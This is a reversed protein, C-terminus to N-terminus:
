FSNLLTSFQEVLYPMVFTYSLIICNLMRQRVLLLSDDIVWQQRINVHFLCNISLPRELSLFTYLQSSYSIFNFKESLIKLLWKTGTRLLWTQAVAAGILWDIFLSVSLFNIFLFDHPFLNLFVAFCAPKLSTKGRLSYLAYPSSIASM